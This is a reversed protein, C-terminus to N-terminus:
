DEVKITLVGEDSLDLLLQDLKEEKTMREDDSISVTVGDITVRRNGTDIIISAKKIM